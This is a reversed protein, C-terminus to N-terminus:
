ALGPGGARMHAPLYTPLAGGGEGLAGAVFHLCTGAWAEYVAGADFSLVPFLLRQCQPQQEFVLEPSAGVTCDTATAARPVAPSHDPPTGGATSAHQPSAASPSLSNPCCPLAARAGSFYGKLTKLPEPAGWFIPIGM